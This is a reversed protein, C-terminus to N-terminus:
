LSCSFDIWAPVVGSVDVPWLKGKHHVIDCIGEPRREMSLKTWADDGATAFAM